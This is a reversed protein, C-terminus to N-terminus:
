LKAPVGKVTAGAPVDRTVVAGAGVVAEAGVHVGPLVTAKAGIYSRAGLTVHGLLLAHPALTAYDGVDCDHMITAGVNLRVGAGLHCETTVVGLQCVVLGPGHRTTPDVNGAIVDLAVLGAAAYSEQVRQRRRPDDIALIVGDCPHASIAESDQGIVSYGHWQGAKAPDCVAAVHIGLRRVLQLMEFHAGALIAELPNTAM